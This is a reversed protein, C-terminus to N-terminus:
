EKVSPRNKIKATIQMLLFTANFSEDFVAESLGM